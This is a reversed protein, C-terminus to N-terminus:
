DMQYKGKFTRILVLKCNLRNSWVLGVLVLVGGAYLFKPSRPAQPLVVNQTKREAYFFSLRDTCENDDENDGENCSSCSEQLPIRAKKNKSMTDFDWEKLPSISKNNLSLFAILEREPRDFYSHLQRVTDELNPEIWNYVGSFPTASDIDPIMSSAGSFELIRNM